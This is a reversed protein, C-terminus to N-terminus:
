ALWGRYRVILGLWRHAIEVHFHFRDGDASEYTNGGPALARPLPLGLLNWRRVIFLLKDEKLVLAIDFRLPGFRESLHHRDQTLTSHFTQHGFVRAWREGEGNRTPSISVTIPITQTNLTAQPFGILQAVLRVLPHTGREVQAEGAWM